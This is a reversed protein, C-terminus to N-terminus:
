CAKCGQRYDRMLVYGLRKADPRSRIPGPPWDPSSGPWPRVTTISGSHPLCQAGGSAGVDYLAVFGGRRARGGSVLVGVVPHGRVNSRAGREAHAGWGSVLCRRGRRHGADHPLGVPPAKIGAIGGVQPLGVVIVALVTTGAM